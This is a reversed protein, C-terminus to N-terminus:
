IQMDKNKNEYDYSKNPQQTSSMHNVFEQRRMSAYILKNKPKRQFSSFKSVNINPKRLFNDYNIM